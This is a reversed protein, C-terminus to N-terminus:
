EVVNYTNYIITLPLLLMKVNFFENTAFVFLAHLGHAIGSM